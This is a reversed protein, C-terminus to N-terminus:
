TAFAADIAELAGIEAHANAILKEVASESWGMQAAIATMYRASAILRWWAARASPLPLPPLVDRLRDCMPFAPAPLFWLCVNVDHRVVARSCREFLELARRRGPCLPTRGQM